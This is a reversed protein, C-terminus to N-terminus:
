LFFFYANFGKEICHYKGFFNFVGIRNLLVKVGMTRAHQNYHVVINRCFRMILLDLYSDNPVYDPDDRDAKFKDFLRKIVTEDKIYVGWGRSSMALHIEESHLTNTDTYQDFKM